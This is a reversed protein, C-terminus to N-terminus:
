LKVRVKAKTKKKKREGAIWRPGEKVAEVVKTDQEKEGSSQLVKVNYPKGKEDISFEVDVQRGYAVVDSNSLTDRENEKHLKKYVYDQFSQWGGEPQAAAMKERTNITSNSSGASGASRQKGFNTVVVEEALTNGEQLIITNARNANLNVNQQAYGVVAVEAPATTDYTKVAFNGNADTFTSARYNNSGNVQVNAYSLPEGNNNIVRGRMETYARTQNNNATTPATNSFGYTSVPPPANSATVEVASKKAQAIIPAAPKYAEVKTTAANFQVSRAKAIDKAKDDNSKVDEKATKEEAKYYKRHDIKDIVGDKDADKKAPETAAFNYTGNGAATDLRVDLNDTNIQNQSATTSLNSKLKTTSDSTAPAIAAVEKQQTENVKALTSKNESSNMLWVSISGAGIVMTVAAAVKWWNNNKNPLVVVKTEEKAGLLAATIENLHQHAITHNADSFGEIADALFPDQLAAKEMAYMETANMKGQLYREIDVLSYNIHIAENKM